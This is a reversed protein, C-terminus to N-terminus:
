GSYRMAVNCREYRAGFQAMIETDHVFGLKEYLHIAAASKRNSLLYLPDAGLAQAREIVAALLIEGVKRGRASALVGMKTLEYHRKGTKQLACTGVIGVGALEAFLIAGGRDLITARPNELVEVDTAELRYMAGIWEANIDHFHRALADSFDHITVGPGVAASTLPLRLYVADALPSAYYSATPAFGAQRYLALAAHMDPLTDLVMERYGLQAAATIIANMLASGVGRGRGAPVVYLRKMECREPIALPRLAVCGLPKGDDRRALLLAGAPSAYAGPFSAREGDFDQFGLDIGLSEVYSEFLTRAAQLDDASAVARVTFPAGTM